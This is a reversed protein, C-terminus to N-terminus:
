GDGSLVDLGNAEVVVTMLLPTQDTQCRARRPRSGAAGASFRGKAGQAPRPPHRRSGSCGSLVVAAIVTLRIVKKM